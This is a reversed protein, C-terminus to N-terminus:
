SIAKEKMPAKKRIQRQNRENVPMKQRGKVFQSFAAGEDDDGAVKAAFDKDGYRLVLDPAILSIPLRKVDRLYEFRAKIVRELPYAFFAPFKSLEFNTYTYIGRVFEWKPRLEREVSYGLIPPLRSIFRGVNRIGISRLFEIVPVMDKQIDLTLLSPFSRFISALNEEEVGQALIFAVVQKMKSVQMGLLTPYLQLVRALDDEWIGLEEMLYSAVPLVQETANLLLVSPYASIVKGLDSTGIENRLTWATSSMREYTEDILQRRQDLSQGVFAPLIEKNTEGGAAVETIQPQVRPVPVVADLLELCEARRILPGIKNVPMRIADSSLFAILRFLAAPSRSLLTPLANKDRAISSASVGLKSMAAVVQHASRSGRKTLLGPCNRVVKRADYRRLKLTGCLLGSLARQVTEEVTEGELSEDNELKRPMMLAISPTHTLITAIDKATLGYEMLVDVVDAFGYDPQKTLTTSVSSTTATEVDTMSSSTDKVGGGDVWMSDREKLFERVRRRATRLLAHHQVAEGAQIALNEDVGEGTSVLLNAVRNQNFQGMWLDLSDDPRQPLDATAVTSQQSVDEAAGGGRSSSSGGISSSVPQQPQEQQLRQQQRTLEAQQQQNKLIANQELAEVLSYSPRGTSGTSPATQEASDGANNISSSSSYPTALTGFEGGREEKLRKQKSLFRLLASDVLPPRATVRKPAKRKRSDSTVM